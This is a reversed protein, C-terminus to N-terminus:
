YGSADAEKARPKTEFKHSPRDSNTSYVGNRPNDFPSNKPHHNRRPEITSAKGKGSPEPPSAFDPRLLRIECRLSIGLRHRRSPTGSLLSAFLLLPPLALDGRRLNSPAPAATSTAAAPNVTRTGGSISCPLITCRRLNQLFPSAM